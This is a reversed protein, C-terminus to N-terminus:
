SRVEGDDLSGGAINVWLGQLRFHGVDWFALSYKENPRAQWTVSPRHSLVWSDTKTTHVHDITKDTAEVEHQSGCAKYM